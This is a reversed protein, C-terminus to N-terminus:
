SLHVSLVRERQRLLDVRQPQQLLLEWGQEYVLDSRVVDLLGRLGYARTPTTIDLVPAAM